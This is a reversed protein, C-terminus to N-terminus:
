IAKEGRRKDELVNQAEDEEAKVKGPFV